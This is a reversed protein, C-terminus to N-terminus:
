KNNVYYHKKVYLTAMYSLPKMYYYAMMRIKRIGNTAAICKEKNSDLFRNIVMRDKHGSTLLTLGQLCLEVIPGFQYRELAPYHDKIFELRELEGM